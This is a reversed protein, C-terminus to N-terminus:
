AEGTMRAADHRRELAQKLLILVEDWTFPETLGGPGASAGGAGDVLRHTTGDYRRPFNQLRHGSPYETQYDPREGVVSFRVRRDDRNRIWEMNLLVDRVYDADAVVDRPLVPIADSVAPVPLCASM